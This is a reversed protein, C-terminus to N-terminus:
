IRKLYTREPILMLIRENNGLVAQHQGLSLKRREFLGLNLLLGVALELALVWAIAAGLIREVDAGHLCSPSSREKNQAFRMTPRCFFSAASASAIQSADCRRPRTEFAIAGSQQGARHRFLCSKMVWTHFSAAGIIRPRAPKWRLEARRKLQVAPNAGESAHRRPRASSKEQGRGSTLPAASVSGGGRAMGGLPEVAVRLVFSPFLFSLSFSPVTFDLAGLVM